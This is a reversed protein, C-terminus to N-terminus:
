IISFNVIFIIEDIKVETGTNEKIQIEKAGVAKLLENKFKNIIEQGDVSTAIELTVIDNPNLGAKKRMDQIARVLERYNGEQKLDETIHTDLEVKLEEGKIFKIEKVNLEDKIIEEYEIPLQYGV